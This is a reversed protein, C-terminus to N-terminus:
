MGASIAWNETLNYTFYLCYSNQAFESISNARNFRQRWSYSFKPTIQGDLRLNFYRVKLGSGAVQKQGELQQNLYDFRAEVGLKFVENEDQAKAINFSLLAVCLVLLARLSTTPKIM